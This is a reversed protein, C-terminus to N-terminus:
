TRRSLGVLQEAAALDEPRDVDVAPGVDHGYLPL